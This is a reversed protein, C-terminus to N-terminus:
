IGTAEDNAQQRCPHGYYIHQHYGEEAHAGRLRAGPVHAGARRVVRAGGVAARGPQLVHARHVRVHRGNGRLLDGADCSALFDSSSSFLSFFLDPQQLFPFGHMPAVVSVILANILNAM